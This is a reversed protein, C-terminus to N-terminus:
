LDRTTRTVALLPVDSGDMEAKRTEVERMMFAMRRVVDVQKEFSMQGVVTEAIVHWDRPMMKGLLQCFIKPEDEKLKEFYAQAGDGSELAAALATKVRDPFKNPTGKQRGGHRVGPTGFPAKKAELKAKAELEYKYPQRTKPM